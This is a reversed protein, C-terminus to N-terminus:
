SSVSNGEHEFEFLFQNNELPSHILRGRLGWKNKLEKFMGGITFLQVSFFLGVVIWITRMAAREKTLNVHVVNPAKKELIAPFARNVVVGRGATM